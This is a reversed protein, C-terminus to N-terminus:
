RAREGCERPHVAAPAVRNRVGGANGASAPIFRGPRQLHTQHDHTGRVRPSSGFPVQRNFRDYFREGCERPHVALGAQPVVAIGANGASAPIFGAAPGACRAPARTGRVRPSSGTNSPVPKASGLREGCERPHVTRPAALGTLAPANGASAPIFRYHHALRDRERLTGRVRPSSGRRQRQQLTRRHREGCERPHVRAIQQRQLVAAANGASAPIFRCSAPPPSRPKRTGRVRPSSGAPQSISKLSDTREGCERPHVPAGTVSRGPATANGASAPIFRHGSVDARQRQPTGRVRPSSGHEHAALIQVVGREGCERPHVSRAGNPASRVSANGASAPIFRGLLQFDAHGILTGRVRPSSGTDQGFFLAGM